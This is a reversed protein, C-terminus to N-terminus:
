KISNRMYETGTLGPGRLCLCDVKEYVSFKCTCVAVSQVMVPAAHIFIPRCCFFLLFFGVSLLSPPFSDVVVDVVLALYQPDLLATLGANLVSLILIIILDECHSGLRSM